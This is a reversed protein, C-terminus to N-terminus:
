HVRARSARPARAREDRRLAEIADYCDRADQTWTTRDLQSADEDALRDYKLVSIAKMALVGNDTRFVHRPWRDIIDAETIATPGGAQADRARGAVEPHDACWGGFHAPLDTARSPKYQWKPSQRYAEWLLCAAQVDDDTHRGAIACLEGMWALPLGKRADVVRIGGLSQSVAACFPQWKHGLPRSPSATTGEGAKSGAARSRQASTTGNARAADPPYPPDKDLDKDIDLAAHGNRSAQAVAAHSSTDRMRSVGTVDDNGDTTAHAVGDTTGVDTAAGRQEAAIRRRRQREAVQGRPEPVRVPSQWQDWDRISLVGDNSIKVRGNLDAVATTISDVSCRLAWAVDDVSGLVGGSDRDGALLIMEVFRRYAMDSLRGISPDVLMRTHLKVWPRGM